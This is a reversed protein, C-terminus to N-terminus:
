GAVEADGTVEAGVTSAHLALLGSLSALFVVTKM